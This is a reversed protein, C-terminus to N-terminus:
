CISEMSSVTGSTPELVGLIINITTTKGAGNPGVLGVIEGLQVSFSISNVAVTEDYLKRLGTVTLVDRM